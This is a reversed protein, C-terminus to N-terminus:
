MSGPVLVPLGLDRYKLPVDYMYAPFARTSRTRHVVLYKKMPNTIRYFERDDEYHYKFGILYALKKIQTIYYHLAVTDKWWAFLNGM